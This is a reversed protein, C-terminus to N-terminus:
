FHGAFGVGALGPGPTVVLAATDSSKKNGVIVWVLGAGVAAVGVGTLVAGITRGSKASSGDSALTNCEAVNRSSPGSGCKLANFDDAKSTLKSNNSVWLVAGTIALAGGVGVVIWPAIGPGHSDDVPAATSTTAATTTTTATTTATPATGTATTTATSSAATTTPETTATATTATTTGAKASLNAIKQDLLDLEEGKPGGRQRFLKYVEVAQAYQGNGEYAKGLNKLLLHATCDRKYADKWYKIADGYNSTVYANNGLQFLTKAEDTAAKSPKCAAGEPPPWGPENIAPALVPGLGSGSVAISTVLLWPFFRRIRM